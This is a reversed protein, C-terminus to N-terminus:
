RKDRGKLIIHTSTNWVRSALRTGFADQFEKYTEMNGTFINSKENFLRGDLYMLLQSYDYNSISTGGIEDWVILDANTLHIKYEDTLPNDFDKLKLLLTPVHVFMGRVRFGNGAWVENFYKLLIKIAWSTKGNGTTHGGIYLNFDGTDVYDLINDKIDALTCFADYDCDDPILSVPKQKVKPLGSNDMLCKMESYRICADCSNDMQCVSSYWCESNRENDM